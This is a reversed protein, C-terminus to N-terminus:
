PNVGGEASQTLELFILLVIVRTFEVLQMLQQETQEDPTPIDTALRTIDVLDSLGERADASLADLDCGSLGLGYSFGQCWGVLEAARVGLPQEIGPLLLDFTLEESGLEALTQRYLGALQEALTKHSLNALDLGDPLLETLWAQQADASNGCLLGCLVGHVEGAGLPLSLDHLGQQLRAHSAPTDASHM